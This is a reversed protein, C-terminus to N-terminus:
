KYGEAQAEFMEKYLKGYAILEEHSGYETIKGNEMVIIKDAKRVTSFRHSVILTTRGEHSKYINNFILYEGKADIASTPEDLIMLDGDRLLSRAVGLRQMQGGSLDTGDDFSTDLRSELKHPLKEIFGRAGVLDATEMIEKKSVDRSLGMVLNDEITLHNIILFDQSLNSIEKYYDEIKLDAINVGNVTITGSTPLYQRLLLKLLTSKGAGNEGVLALRSGPAIVFSVDDLAKEKSGPYSFTVNKFEINLPRTVSVKGNPIAPQTAHIETFNRLDISMAHLSDISGAVSTASSSAQQLIGRLFIFRDLGITGALVLRFFYINAGFSVLSPLVDAIFNSRVDLKNQNFRIDNAKNMSKLWSASINGFANMLRVEPMSNTDLLLWRSRWAVREIPEIKKYMIEWSKNQKVRIYSLPIIIVIITVGVVPAVVLVAGIAGIFNIASSLAYSLDSLVRWIRNIADQARDIKTVFGQDDFQEQSLSYLKTFFIETTKLDIRQEFRNGTLTHLNSIITSVLEIVLLWILWHYVSYTPGSGTAAFTVATILKAVVFVEVVPVIGSYVAHLINWVFFVKSTKIQLKIVWWLSRLSKNKM